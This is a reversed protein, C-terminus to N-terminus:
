KVEAKYATRKQAADRRVVVEQEHGANNCPYKSTYHSTHTKGDNRIQELHFHATTYHPKHLHSECATLYQAQRNSQIQRIFPTPVRRKNHDHPKANNNANGYNHIHLGNIIMQFNLRIVTGKLM